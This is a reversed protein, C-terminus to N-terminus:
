VTEKKKEEKIQEKVIKNGEKAEDKVIKNDEKAEDKVIKNDEKAEDKVIKNDEKAEDKVIKEDQSNGPRILVEPYQYIFYVLAAALVPISLLRFIKVLVVASVLFTAAYVVNKFVDEQHYIDSIMKKTEGFSPVYDGVQLKDTRSDSFLELFAHEIKQRNSIQDSKTDIIISKSDIVKSFDASLRTILISQLNKGKDFESIVVSVGASEGNDLDIVIRTPNQQNYVEVLSLKYGKEDVFTISDNELQELNLKIMEKSVKAPTTAYTSHLTLFCILIYIFLRRM